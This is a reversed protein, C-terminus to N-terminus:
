KGLAERRKGDIRDSQGDYPTSSGFRVPPTVQRARENARAALLIAQEDVPSAVGTRAATQAAHAMLKATQQALAAVQQKLTAVEEDRQQRLAAAEEKLAAVDAKLTAIEEQTDTDTVTNERQQQKNSM